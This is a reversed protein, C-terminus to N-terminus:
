LFNDLKKNVKKLLSNSLRNIHEENSVLIRYADVIALIRILIYVGVAILAILIPYYPMLVDSPVIEKKVLLFSIGGAVISCVGVVMLATFKRKINEYRVKLEKLYQQDFILAEKKLTTYRDEEIFGATIVGIGLVAIMSILVVYLIPDQKFVFYPITSITLLSFGMSFYKSMKRQSLLYGEAMEKSVYYGKENEKSQIVTDKLLYDISVEFINGLMLLKETEPFGYGNEWKSVAQRTTNIKEALAEQSLGKEKRLKFLKESFTM